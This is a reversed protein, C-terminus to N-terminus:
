KELRGVEKETRLLSILDLIGITMLIDIMLPSVQFFGSVYIIWGPATIGFIYSDVAMFDFFMIFGIISIVAGQLTQKRKAHELTTM